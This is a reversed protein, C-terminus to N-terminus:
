LFEANMRSMNYYNINIDLFARLAALIQYKLMGYKQLLVNTDTTINHYIDTDNSM